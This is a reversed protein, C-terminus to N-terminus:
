DGETGAYGWGREKNFAESKISMDGSRELRFHWGKVVLWAFLAVFVVVWFLHPVIFDRVVNKVPIIGNWM